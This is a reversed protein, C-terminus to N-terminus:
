KKKEPTYTEMFEVIKNVTKLKPSRGGTRLDDVLNFDGLVSMGFTTEPMAHLALFSDITALLQAENIM